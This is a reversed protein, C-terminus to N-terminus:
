GRRRSLLDPQLDEILGAFQNVVAADDRAGFERPSQQVHTASLNGTTEVGVRQRDFFGAGLRRRRSVAMQDQLAPAVAEPYRVLSRNPGFIRRASAPQRDSVAGLRTQGPRTYALGPRADFRRHRWICPRQM